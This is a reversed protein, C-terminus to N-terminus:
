DSGWTCPPQCNRAAPGFKLHYDGLALPSSLCPWPSPLRRRRSAPSIPRLQSFIAVLTTSMLPEPTAWHRHHPEPRGLSPPGVHGSYPLPLFPGSVAVGCAWPQLLAYFGDSGRVPSSRSAAPGRLSIPCHFGLLSPTSLGQLHDRCSPTDHEM